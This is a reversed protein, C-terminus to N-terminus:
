EEAAGTEADPEPKETSEESPKEWGWCWPPMPGHHRHWRGTWYQGQPGGAMRWARFRFFRGIGILLLIILGVALFLGGGFPFPAFVFYRGPYGFGYPAYPAAAGEESGAALQGAVYGQSWGIRHIVFGGIILLGIVILAALARVVFWTKSM